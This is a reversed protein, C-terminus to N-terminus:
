DNVIFSVDSSNSQIQTSIDLHPSTANPVSSLATTAITLTNTFMQTRLNHPIEQAESFRQLKELLVSHHLQEIKTKNNSPKQRFIFMGNLPVFCNDYSTCMNNDHFYCLILCFVYCFLKHLLFNKKNHFRLWKWVKKIYYAFQHQSKLKTLPPIPDSPPRKYMDCHVVYIKWWSISSILAHLVSVSVHKQSYLTAMRLAYKWM